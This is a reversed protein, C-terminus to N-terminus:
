FPQWPCISNSDQQFLDEHANKYYPDKNYICMLVHSSSLFFLLFLLYVSHKKLEALTLYIQHEVTRVSIHLKKAIEKHSLGKFRSMEFIQKRKSPIQELVLRIFLQIERYYIPELPDQTDFIEKLLNEQFLKAHYDKEIKRHRIFNLTANKTIVYLRNDMSDNDLWLDPQTWLKAFVDQAIDAADEDSKLLMKAFRKVMAYHDSFFQEFKATLTASEPNM